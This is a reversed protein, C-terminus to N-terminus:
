PRPASLRRKIRELEENTKRLEERLRQVEEDRSALRGNGPASRSLSDVLAAVRRLTSAEGHHRREPRIMLYEDLLSLAQRPSSQANAPDLLYVARWFHAEAAEVSGAHRLTFDALMSDSRAYRGENVARQAQGLLWPWEAGAGEGSPRQRQVCAAFGLLALGLAAIAKM